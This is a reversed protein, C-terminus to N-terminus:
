DTFPPIARELGETVADVAKAAVIATSEALPEVSKAKGGETIYSVIHRWKRTRPRPGLRTHGM